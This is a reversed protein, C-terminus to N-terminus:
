VFLQNVFCFHYTKHYYIGLILKTIVRLIWIIMKSIQFMWFSENMNLGLLEYIKLFTSTEYWISVQKSCLQHSVFYYLTCFPPEKEIIRLLMKVTAATFWVQPLAYDQRYCVVITSPFFLLWIIAAANRKIMAIRHVISAARSKILYLM